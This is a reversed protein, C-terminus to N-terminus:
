TDAQWHKLADQLYNFFELFEDPTFGIYDTRTRGSLTTAERSMDIGPYLRATGGANIRIIDGNPRKIVLKRFLEIPHMERYEKNVM